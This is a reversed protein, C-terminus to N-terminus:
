NKKLNSHIKLRGNPGPKDDVHLYYASINELISELHLRNPILSKEGQIVLEISKNSLNPKVEEV